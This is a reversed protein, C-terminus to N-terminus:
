NLNGHKFKMHTELSESTKASFGCHECKHSSPIHEFKCQSGKLCRGQKFYKCEKKNPKIHTETGESSANVFHEEDLHKVMEDETDTILGCTNFICKIVHKNIIHNLLQVKKQFKSQCKDCKHQHSVHENNIHDILKEKNQYQSSCKDCKHIHSVGHKEKRHVEFGTHNPFSVLCWECDFPKINHVHEIHANLETAKDCHKRCVHCDLHIFKNHGMLVEKSRAVFQCKECALVNRVHNDDEIVILEETINQKTETELSEKTNMKNNVQVNESTAKALLDRNSKLSDELKRVTEKSTKFKKTLDKFEKASYSIEKELTKIYKRDKSTLGRLFTITRKASELEKVVNTKENIQKNTEDMTKELELTKAYDSKYNKPDEIYNVMSENVSLDVDLNALIEADEVLEVADLFEDENDLMSELEKTDLNILDNVVKVRQTVKTPEIKEISEETEECDNQEKKDDQEASKNSDENKKTEEKKKAEDNKNSEENNKPIEEKKDHQSKMHTKLSSKLMEKDCVECKVKPNTKKIDSEAM